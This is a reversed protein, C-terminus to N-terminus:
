DREGDPISPPPPGVMELRVGVLRVPRTPALRALLTAAADSLVDPDLTPTPLTLSRSTTAFGSTRVKVGVRTAARGAAVLDDRALLALRRCAAALETPDTVDTQFTEERGHAQPVWPTPDVPRTDVGRALRRFWPGMTPGLEAALRDARTAALDAVTEIGLGALRRATKAGIGGLATVPRPGMHAAWTDDALRFVGRPKGFDTATKAQLRNDGIGVSCHLGTAALVVRRVHDALAEVDLSADVPPSRLALFAEDWGLVEVDVGSSGPGDAAGDATSATDPPWVVSRLAEMVRESAADYAPKDVPLFVAGPCKRAALRLPMGSRVGRERAEYSATSVVGRETPDGRGGVVVPRGALEPRRQVEVSALFADLDVHLVPGVATPM